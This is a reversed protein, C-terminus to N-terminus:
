HISVQRQLELTNRFGLACLCSSTVSTSREAHVHFDDTAVLRWMQSKGVLRSNPRGSRTKSPAAVIDYRQPLCPLARIRGSQTLKTAESLPSAIFIDCTCQRTRSNCAAASQNSFTHWIAGTNLLSRMTHSDKPTNPTIRSAAASSLITVM